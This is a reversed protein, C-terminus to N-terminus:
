LGRWARAAPISPRLIVFNPSDTFELELNRLFPGTTPASWYKERVLAVVGKEPSRGQEADIAPPSLDSLPTHLLDAAYMQIMSM